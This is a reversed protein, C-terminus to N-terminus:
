RYFINDGLIALASENDEIFKGALGVPVSTGYRGDSPQTIFHFNVHEPLAVLPLLDHKNKQELYDNLQPNNGYYNQIQSSQESTVFYIEKIGARIIDQVIYDVVPRTGVPLMSKEISK